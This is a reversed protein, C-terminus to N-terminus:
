FASPKKRPYSAAVNSIPTAAARLLKRKRTYHRPSLTRRTSSNPDLAAVGGANISLAFTAWQCQESPKDLRSQKSVPTGMFRRRVGADQAGGVLGLVSCFAVVPVGGGRGGM